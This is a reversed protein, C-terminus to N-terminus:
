NDTVRKYVCRMNQPRSVFSGDDFVLYEDSFALIKWQMDLIVKGVYEDEYHLFLILNKNEADYQWDMELRMAEWDGPAFYQGTGDAMFSYQEWIGGNGKYRDVKLLDQWNDDYRLVTDTKWVGPLGQILTETDFDKGQEILNDVYVVEERPPVDNNTNNNCAVFGMIVILAILIRVKM